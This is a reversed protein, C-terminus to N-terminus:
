TKYINDHHDFDVLTVINQEENIDYILVFSGGVHVRRKNQLPKKLPKFRYPDRLIEKVKKDILVLLERDKKRLKKLKRDLSQKVALKYM